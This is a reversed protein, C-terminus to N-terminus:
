RSEPALNGSNRHGSSTLRSYKSIKNTAAHEAAAGAERASNIVHADAFKNPVTVDWALSQGGKV